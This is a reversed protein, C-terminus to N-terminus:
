GASPATTDAASPSAESTATATDSPV